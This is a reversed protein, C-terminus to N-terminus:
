WAALMGLQAGHHSGHWTAWLILMLASGGWLLRARREDYLSQGVAITAILFPIFGIFM